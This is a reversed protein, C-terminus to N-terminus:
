RGARGAICARARACGAATSPVAAARGQPTEVELLPELWMLGRSGNRVLVADLKRSAIEAAVANAVAEAGMSLAASDSPVFIRDVFDPGPLHLRDKPIKPNKFGLLHDAKDGLLKTIQTM